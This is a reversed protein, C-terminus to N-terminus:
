NTSRCEPNDIEISRRLHDPASGLGLDAQADVSCLSDAYIGRYNCIQMRRYIVTQLDGGPFVGCVLEDGFVARPM